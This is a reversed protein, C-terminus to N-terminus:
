RGSTLRRRVDHERRLRALDRERRAAVVACLFHEPATGPPPLPAVHQSVENALRAGVAARSYPDLDGLRGLYQRVGLALGTPLSSIDARAAWGALHPPMPPPYPLQLGVRTRVVYTGAAYDGLRKGRGSLLMSFFAPVGFFLYTEVVGILTRVLAHHFSIPGADDRVTRLGLALKGLSRGRTLTEVTVPVVLFVVLTVAIIIADRAAPDTELSVLGFAIVLGILLVVTVVVDILGSALRSGLSAPPLDLAVAEGTVLDDSTLLSFEPRQPGATTV